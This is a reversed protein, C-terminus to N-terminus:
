KPWYIPIYISRILSRDQSLEHLLAAWNKKGLCVMFTSANRGITFLSLFFLVFGVLVGCLEHLGASTLCNKSNMHTWYDERRYEDFLWWLPVLYQLCIQGLNKGWKFCPSFTGCSSVKVHPGLLCCYVAAFNNM